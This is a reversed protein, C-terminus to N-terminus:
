KRTVGAYQEDTVNQFWNTPGFSVAVQQLPASPLAGHWHTVNPGVSYTESAKFERGRTGGQEQVVMSGKEVVIVQGGTHSHWNTRAASEFTIRNVRVDTPQSFTVKGTFNAPDPPPAPNQPPVGSWAISTIGTLLLAAFVHTRNM